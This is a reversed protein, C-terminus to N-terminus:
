TEAQLTNMVTSQLDMLLNRSGVAFTICLLYHWIIKAMLTVTNIGFHM